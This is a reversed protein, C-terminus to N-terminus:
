KYRGSFVDQCWARCATTSTAVAVYLSPRMRAHQIALDCDVPACLRMEAPMAFPGPAAPRCIARCCVRSDFFVFAPCRHRGFRKIRVGCQTCPLENDRLEVLHERRHVILFQSPFLRWPLIANEVQHAMQRRDM